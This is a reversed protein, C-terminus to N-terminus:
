SIITRICCSPSPGIAWVRNQRFPLYIKFLVLIFVVGWCMPFDKGRVGKVMLYFVSCGLTQKPLSIKEVLSLLGPVRKLPVQCDNVYNHM